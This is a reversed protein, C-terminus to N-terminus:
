PQSSNLEELIALGLFASTYTCSVRFWRRYGVGSQPSCGVLSGNAEVDPGDYLNNLCWLLARRAAECYKEEGTHNYLEYLLYSWLATGKESYGVEELSQNYRWNWSGDEAQYPLMAEAMRVAKKLYPGDPFIRHAALLGEMAWGLGRTMHQSPTKSGTDFNYNRYWLGDESEFVSLHREIFELADKKLGPDPAIRYLDAYGEMGFGVEDIVWNSWEGTEFYYSHPPIPWDKFLSTTVTCQTRAADLFRQDGTKEYLPVWAWGSFFLADAATVAGAYSEEYSVNRDWRSILMGDLPAKPDHLVFRLGAEGIEQAAHRIAASDVSGSLAESARLLMAVSPGWGWVWHYSRYVSADLDYFLYLGGRAPHEPDKVQSRLTFAVTGQLAKLLRDRSLRNGKEYSTARFTGAEIRQTGIEELGGDLDAFVSVSGSWQPSLLRFERSVRGGVAPAELRLYFGKMKAANPEILVSNEWEHLKPTPFILEPTLTIREHYFPGNLIYSGKEAGAVSAIGEMGRTLAVDVVPYWVNRDYPADRGLQTEPDPNFPSVDRISSIVNNRDSTIWIKVQQVGIPVQAKVSLLTGKKEVSMQASLSATAGILCLLFKWRTTMLM